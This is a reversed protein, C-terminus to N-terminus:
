KNFPREADSEKKRKVGGEKEKDPCDHDGATM